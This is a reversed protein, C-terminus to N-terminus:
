PEPHGYLRRLAGAITSVDRILGASVRLCMEVVEDEPLPDPVPHGVLELYYSALLFGTRKNGDDFPHGQTVGRLLMAARDFDDAHPDYGGFSQFAAGVIQEVLGPARPRGFRGGFDAVALVNFYAAAASLLRVKAATTESDTSAFDVPEALIFRIRALLDSLEPGDNPEM